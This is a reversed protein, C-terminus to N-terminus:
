SRNILRTKLTFLEITNPNQKYEDIRNIISNRQQQKEIFTKM